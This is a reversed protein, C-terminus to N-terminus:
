TVYGVTNVGIVGRRLIRVSFYEHEFEENEFIESKFEETEFPEQEFEEEEFIGLGIDEMIEKPLTYDQKVLGFFTCGTYVCYSMVCGHTTQYAFAGVVGGIFSGLMYGLVPLSPLLSQLAAGAFKSVMSKMTAGIVLSCTATFLNQICRNAFEHESMRGFAMLIANEVTDMTLAVIAGILIPNTAKLSAGLKGSKCSITIAAALGGRIYGLTSGRLAAFGLNKFDDANVGDDRLAKMIIGLLKPAVELVISIVAASLGAENAQKMIHQWEILKDPMLGWDAPDFGEEKALKALEEAEEKSIPISEAGEGSKVRDTLKDLTEQYRTVQDPRGGNAEELIKRRLWARAEELQDKAIIRFQGMYLPNNHDKYGPFVEDISQPARNNKACEDLYKKYEQQFYEEYSLPQNGKAIQKERFMEYRARYIEAQAKAAADGSQLFKLGFNAEGDIEIDPSGLVHSEPVKARASVGKRVADINHVHAHWYEAVVGKLRAIDRGDKSLNNIATRLEEVANEVNGVYEAGGLASLDAGAKDRFAQFGNEFATM